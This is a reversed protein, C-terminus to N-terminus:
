VYIRCQQRNALCLYFHTERGERSYHPDAHLMFLLGIQNKQCEITIDNFYNVQVLKNDNKCVAFVSSQKHQLQIATLQDAQKM